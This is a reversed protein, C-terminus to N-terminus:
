SLTESPAKAAALRAIGAMDLANLVAAEANVCGYGHLPDPVSGQAPLRRATRALIGAVESPRLDPNASLVLAAIGAVLPCSSSTGGFRHGSRLTYAGKDYGRDRVVGHPDRWTGTVDSTVIGWGGVGSSPAAILIKDGFNSYTSRTDESTTAAVAIVDEHLAFGAVSGTAPDHINRNENGAAFIIVCGKGGRGNRACRAIAEKKRTSLPYYRAAAGWSNSCVAAGSAEVFKFWAIVERDSLSRGWRVPVLGCGPAAGMVEGKASAALAVGACATGHADGIEPSVDPSERQFCYSKKTKGKLDPHDLDFGDDIVAITISKSGKNGLAKWAAKVRADAGKRYGASVGGHVGKNELHWQLNVLGDGPAFRKAPSALDPEAIEIEPRAAMDSALAMPNPSAPTTRLIFDREEPAEIIELHYAEFIAKRAADAIGPAFRVFIEGSPVFPIEEEDGPHTYVHTGISIDPRKRLSELASDAENGELRLIEFGGLSGGKQMAGNAVGHNLLGSFSELADPNPRLGIKDKSKQFDVTEGGYTLQITDAM